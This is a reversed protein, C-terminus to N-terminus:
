PQTSVLLPAGTPAIDATMLLLDTAALERDRLATARELRM